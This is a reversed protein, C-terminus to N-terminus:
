KRLFSILFPFDLALRSPGAEEARVRRGQALRLTFPCVKSSILDDRPVGPAQKDQESEQGTWDLERSQAGSGSVRATTEDACSTEESRKREKKKRKERESERM